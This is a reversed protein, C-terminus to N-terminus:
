FLRPVNHKEKETGWMLIEQTTPNENVYVYAKVIGKQKIATHLEKSHGINRMYRGASQPQVGEMLSALYTQAEGRDTFGKITNNYPCEIYWIKTGTYKKVQNNTKEEDQYEYIELFGDIRTGTKMARYVLNDIEYPTYRNELINKLILDDVLDAIGEFDIINTDETFVNLYFYKYILNKRTEVTVYKYEKCDLNAISSNKKNGSVHYVEYCRKNKRDKDYLDDPVEFLLKAFNGVKHVNLQKTRDYGQYGAKGCYVRLITVNNDKNNKTTLPYSIEYKQLTYINYTEVRKLNFLCDDAYIMNGVKRYKDYNLKECDQVRDYCEPRIFIYNNKNFKSRQTCDRYLALYLQQNRTYGMRTLERMNNTLNILKKGEKSVEEPLIVWNNDPKRIEGSNHPYENFEVYKLHLVGGDELIETKEELINKITILNDVDNYFKESNININRKADTTSM